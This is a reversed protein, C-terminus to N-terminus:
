GPLRGISLDADFSSSQTIGAPNIQFSIEDGTELPLAETLQAPAERVPTRLTLELATIVEVDLMPFSRGDLRSGNRVINLEYPGVGSGVSVTSASTPGGDAGIAILYIGDQPVTFIGTEPDFGSGEVGPVVTWDEFTATATLELNDRSALLPDLLGESGAPGQPGQPGAAGAPGQPGPAGAPLQGPAFDTALLSGNRVKESTVVGDRLRDWAISNKALKGARIAELDVNQTKVANAQLQRTGVSNKPLQTAAFAAGGGLVLFVALSSMVNAYTLRKRIQKL